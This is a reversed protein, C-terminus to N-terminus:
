SEVEVKAFDQFAHFLSGCFDDWRRCARISGENLETISGYSVLSSIEGSFERVAGADAGSLIRAVFEEAPYSM